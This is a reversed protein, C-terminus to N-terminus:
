PAAWRTRRGARLLVGLTILALTEPEPVGSLTFDDVALGHDAGSDDVDRWRLVLYKDPAWDLGTITGSLAVQNAAANGNLAGVTGTTVPTIFNLMSFATFDGGATSVNAGTGVRYEFFLTDATGTTRGLRWQEGTFSVTVEDLTIGTHNAFVVGFAMRRVSGALAGLARDSSGSTGFSYAGSVTGAGDAPAFFAFGSGGNELIQWGELGTTTWGSPPSNTQWSLDDLRFPGDASASITGAAPSHLGDFTQVYTGGGFPVTQGCVGATFNLALAAALGCIGHNHLRRLTTMM